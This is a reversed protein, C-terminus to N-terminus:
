LSTPTYREDRANVHLVDASPFGLVSSVLLAPFAHRADNYRHVCDNYTECAFVVRHETASWEENLERLNANAALKPVRQTLALIRSMGSALQAEAHALSRMAQPEGANEAARQSAGYAANRARLVSELADSEHALSGKVAEILSPILDYRRKLQVDIQTYANKFHNRKSILRKYAGLASLTLLAVIAIVLLAWLM